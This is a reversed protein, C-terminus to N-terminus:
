VKCYTSEDILLKACKINKASGLMSGNYIVWYLDSRKKIIDFGKYEM